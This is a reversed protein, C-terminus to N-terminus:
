DVYKLWLAKQLTSYYSGKDAYENHLLPWRGTGDTTDIDPICGGKGDPGFTIGYNDWNTDVPACPDPQAWTGHEVWREIYSITVTDNWVDVLSPMLKVALVSGKWPQATCCLQYYTGPAPGGDIYGYPDGISRNGEASGTTVYTYMVYWYEREVKSFEDESTNDGYLVLGNKDSPILCQWEHFLEVNDKVVQKMNQDNLMVAAFTIPLKQGPRHGGGAGWTHGLPIMYFLDIGYQIYSILLEMKENIPDDLMLRLAIDANRKGIYSGYNDAFADTPHLLRGLMSTKHDLQLNKIESYRTLSFVGSDPPLLNPLLDLKLSDVSYFPKDIGVYPPRFQNHKPKQSVVTLVAANKLGRGSESKIGKVISSVPQALYPFSPILSPDFKDLDAAFGQGGAVIPNVEWGNFDGTFHPTISDIVVPGIVWYDGNAFTGIEYEKDFYWTIGNQRVQKSIKTINSVIRLGSPKPVKMNAFLSAAFCLSIVVSFRLKRM